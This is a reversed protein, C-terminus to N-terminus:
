QVHDIVQLKDSQQQTTERTVDKADKEVSLMSRARTAYTSGKAIEADCM